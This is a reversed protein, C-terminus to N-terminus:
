WSVLISFQHNNIGRLNRYQICKYETESPLFGEIDFQLLFHDSLAVNNSSINQIIPSGARTIVVDLTHGHIHTPLNILQRVDFSM